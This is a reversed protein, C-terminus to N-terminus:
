KVAAANLNIIQEAIDVIVIGVSAQEMLTQLDSNPNAKSTPVPLTM